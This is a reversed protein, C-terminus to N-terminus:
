CSKIHFYNSYYYSFNMTLRKWMNIFARSVDGLTSLQLRTFQIFIERASEPNEM